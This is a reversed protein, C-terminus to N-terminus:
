RAGSAGKLVRLDVAITATGDTVHVHGDQITVQLRMSRGALRALSRSADLPVECVSLREQRALKARVSDWWLNVARGGYALVSVERARGCAKRM